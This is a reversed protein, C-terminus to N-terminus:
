GATTAIIAIFLLLCLAILWGVLPDPSLRRWLAARREKEAPEGAASQSLLTRAEAFHGRKLAQEARGLLQDNDSAAAPSADSM